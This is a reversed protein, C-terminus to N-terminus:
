LEFRAGATLTGATVDDLEVVRDYNIFLQRGQSIVINTGVSLVGFNDDADDSAFQFASSTTDFRYVSSVTRDDDDFEFHWELGAYPVFVGKSSSLTWSSQGGIVAQLSEVDQDNVTLALFSNTETYGDIDADISDLRAFFNHSWADQALTYGGGLSWTIVDADTDSKPKENINLPTIVVNREGEYDMQGFGLVADFYFDGLYYSGYLSLTFGDSDTEGKNNDFDVEAESYSLAAGAILEDNIRYDAGATFGFADFDFGNEASTGDKDGFGYDGNFFFSLKSFDAGAAGGTDGGWNMALGSAIGTRLFELRSGVSAMQDQATDTFGSAIAAVEEAAIDQLAELAQADTLAGADGLNANYEPVIQDCAQLLLDENSGNTIGARNTTTCLTQVATGVSNQIQNAGTINVTAYASYSLTLLASTTAIGRWTSLKM